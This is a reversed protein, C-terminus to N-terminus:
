HYWLFLESVTEMKQISVKGLMESIEQHVLLSQQDSMKTNPPKEQPKHITDSVGGESNVFNRPRM